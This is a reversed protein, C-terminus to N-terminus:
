FWPGLETKHWMQLQMKAFPVDYLKMELVKQAM